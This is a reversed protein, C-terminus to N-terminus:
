VSVTAYYKNGRKEKNNLIFTETLYCEIANLYYTIDDHNQSAYLDNNYKSIINFTNVVSDVSDGLDFIDIRSTSFKSLSYKTVIKRDVCFCKM